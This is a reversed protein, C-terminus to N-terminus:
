WTQTSRQAFFRGPQTINARCTTTWLSPLLSGPLRPDSWVEDGAQKFATVHAELYQSIALNEGERMKSDLMAQTNLTLLRACLDLQARPLPGALQGLAHRCDPRPNPGLCSCAGDVERDLVDYLWNEQIYSCHDGNFVDLKGVLEGVRGRHRLAVVASAFLEAAPLNGDVYADVGCSAVVRTIGAVNRHKPAWALLRRAREFPRTFEEIPVLEVIASMTSDSPGPAGHLCSGGEGTVRMEAARELCARKLDELSEM